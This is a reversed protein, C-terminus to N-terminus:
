RRHYQTHGLACCSLDAQTASCAPVSPPCAGSSHLRPPSAAWPRLPRGACAAGAAVTAPQQATRSSAGSAEPEGAQVQWPSSSRQTHMPRLSSCSKPRLRRCLGAGAPHSSDRAAPNRLCRRAPQLAPRPRSLGAAAAHVWAGVVFGLLQACERPSCGSGSAAASSPTAAMPRRPRRREGGGDSAAPRGARGPKCADAAAPGTCGPRLLATRAPQARAQAGSSGVPRSPEGSLQRLAAARQGSCPQRAPLSPRRLAKAARRTAARAGRAPRSVGTSTM